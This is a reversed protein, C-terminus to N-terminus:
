SSVKFSILNADLYQIETVKMADMGPVEEKNLGEVFQTLVESSEAKGELGFHYGDIKLNFATIWIKPNVHDSLIEFIKNFVHPRVTKQIYEAVSAANALADEADKNNKRRLEEDQKARTAIQASLTIMKQDLQKKKETLHRLEQKKRQVEFLHFSYLSSCSFLIASILIVAVKFNFYIIRDDIVFPAFNIRQQM